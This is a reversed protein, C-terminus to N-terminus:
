AGGERARRVAALADEVRKEERCGDCPKEGPDILTCSHLGGDLLAKAAGELARYSDQEATVRALDARLDATAADCHDAAEDLFREHDRELREVEADLRRVERALDAIVVGKCPVREANKEAYELTLGGFRRPDTM